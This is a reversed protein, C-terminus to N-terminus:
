KKRYFTNEMPLKTRFVGDLAYYAGQVAPAAPVATIEGIGKAGYSELKHNKEIIITEIEPVKPATLLGLTGYKATPVSDKLPYDETLAYGLSMAVGGEVQGELSLPNIARGVDHAALVKEVEGTEKLVVVQSAYGYSIHSVPNPKDSGMPDTKPFFEGKFLEGEMAELGVEAMREKFQVAAMRCAEGTFATQRSATTTGGDPTYKTDAPAVVVLEKPLGTTECFVQTMVTALGQGICAASSLLLVKGDRYSINCRGIDPVAVGLGANKMACAIGAYKNREFTEKVAELTEVLATSEDAIQGNPLVQGPRIANRYRIEWPSIGVMEALKTICCEVAFVSQSVGFGRFAGGPPNNTYVAMGEIDINQYNYPGAGHTCARQLVPGGLSAYAGTDTVIKARLGLLRGDKDCGITFDMEAAHRKPHCKLSDKRSQSVKVIRGTKYALFGAHHQVSMDEKGGFGGGVYAGIVRLKEPPLGLLASTERQEDYISQGGTYLIVGGTEPDPMGIATEPELFAHETFPTSFHQTYVHAAGALAGEADGRRLHEHALLNGKEHIKPAGEALAEAPSCVPKLVEYEVQILAKIAELSDKNKSVVLAITDGVYRTEEGVAIFAPWDQIHRLHGTYRAGDVDQATYLAICDEHAKAAELNISLLKARPYAARLASGYVMGDFRLDDVYAAQGLTKARADVRLMREGVKGTTNDGPVPTHDRFLAAALLIAEEIKKYGTCRCINGRIAQKVEARSPDPNRDLLGKASIVMGPICFGCQVAGMKSFAYAYVDQERRTMGEITVVSKGALRSPKLVCARMAKGDVLVMCSGCAGESCGDKASLIQERERLIRLLNLEDGYEVKRGNILFEFM